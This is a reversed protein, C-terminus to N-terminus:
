DNGSRGEPASTAQAAQASSAAVHSALRADTAAVRRDKGLVRTADEGMSLELFAVGASFRQRLREAPQPRAVPQIPLGRQDKLSSGVPRVRGPVGRHGDDTQCM